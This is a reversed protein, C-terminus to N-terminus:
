RICRRGRCTTPTRCGARAAPRDGQPHRRLARDDTAILESRDGPVVGQWFRYDGTTHAWLTANYVYAIHGDRDAYATNFLPLQQMRMADQWEGLNKALGMRWFQEFLRPRDIAAVRMAIPSGGRDAVVPGHVSRRVTLLVDRLSGNPERVKITETHTEFPKVQGDLVYGGDKLVLRYLDSEAPNNTTQTWGLYETFCQRLVPFGVWVAGYSTVGPASLQVEFYTHIDGWQLHSNSMLMAKGTASRSPAIAWENSGHTEDDARALRTSLKAPNIIWDYHIVRLCHAYVDEVSVPLVRQAEASLDAKHEAAWANLGRVFSEILPGFEASQGAAWKKATGPHRQHAGLPRRDPLQEGYFEAGRGRAQAYLRLLLESHAEMQAYGYAYFLSPHDPAFIHPVGYRDWLIETGKSPPQALVPATGVLVLCLVVVSARRLVSLLTHEKSNGVIYRLAHGEFM